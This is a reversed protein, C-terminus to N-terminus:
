RMAWLKPVFAQIYPTVATTHTGELPILSVVDPSAGQSLLTNYTDLSNQYPVTADSEGHYLYMEKEPAWDTLSNEVLADLIYSYAADSNIKESLNEQVLDGLTNTLQADIQEANNLGDFLSPIRSAYPEKFFDTLIAPYDFTLQYARILYALYYPDNYAELGLLYEQMGKVDYAGAGSFSAVLEFGDVNNEEIAKHAAMTAYGGESYGALFLRNNFQIANGAAFEKAAKLMDIVASATFDEVYYPHLITASSGFGLYDPIVTIFGSSSVSGYLLANSVANPDSASFNSPADAEVTVTAHQFSLMGVEDSTKPLVVLGSAIIDSGKYITRYTVSFIEVDYKFENVDLGLGSLQSLLKIQPATATYVLQADVLFKNEPEPTEHRDNCSTIFVVIVVSLRFARRPNYFFKMTFLKAM